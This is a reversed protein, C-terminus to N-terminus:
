ASSSSPSIEGREGHATEARAAIRDRLAQQATADIPFNWILMVSVLKFGVPVLGYLLSLGLLATSGNSDSQADFGLLDLVPFALGVAGALSLKTAVGWLAFYFGTRQTGSEATDADVVDAQMSAPLVIDAGLSIGSLISIAVFAWLDGAGLLPVWLFVGCAWLLSVAWIRHKSYRDALKLWFPVAIVGAGFYAFLIAGQANGSELVHTAFLLFLTAPLSNAMGNLLFAIILARFPRNRWIIALGTRWDQHGFQVAPPEPVMRLALLTGVPLLIAAFLFIGILPAEAGTLGAVILLGPMGTACLTGIVTLAERWAVIHSRENYDTSLEAGWANHPLSIATWALYLAVSWFFLYAGGADKPPLCLMFATVLAAATGGAIWPKRRGWRTEWRDSLLGIVPDSVADLIRALLLLVGILALDVGLEQAYYPPIYIYVPVTLAALPLAPLGYAFYHRTGIKGIRGPSLLKTRM